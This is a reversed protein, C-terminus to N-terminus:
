TSIFAKDMAGIFYERVESEVICGAVYQKTWARINIQQEIFNIDDYLEGIDILVIKDGSLGFNKMMNFSKDIIGYVLLKHTFVIFQDILQKKELTSLSIFAISMPVVKDQEYDLSDLFLPNGIWEPPVNRRRIVDFSALAKDRMACALSPVSQFNYKGVKAIGFAIVWYARPLSHFRKLVRGNGLDYATYQWGHGINKM